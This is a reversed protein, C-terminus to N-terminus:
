TKSFKKFNFEKLKILFHGFSNTNHWIQKSTWWFNMKDFKTSRGSAIQSKYQTTGGWIFNLKSFWPIVLMGGAKFSIFFNSQMILYFDSFVSKSLDKCLIIKLNNKKAVKKAFNCGSEDSIIVIPVNKTKKKLVEYVQIFQQETINRKKSWKFNHRIHWSIYKKLKFKKPKFKSFSNKNLLFQNIISRPKDKLMINYFSVFDDRYDKRQMVLTKFPIYHKAFNLKKFNVWSYIKVSELYDSLFFHTFKIKLRLFKIQFKNLKKQNDCILIIKINKKYIIFCKLFFLFAIFDGISFPNQIAKLDWVGLIYNNSSIKKFNRLEILRRYIYFVKFLSYYSFLIQRKIINIIRM